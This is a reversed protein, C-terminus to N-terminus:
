IIFKQITWAGPEGGLVKTVSTIEQDSIEATRLVGRGLGKITESDWRSRPLDSEIESLNINKELLRQEMIEINKYFQDASSNLCEKCESETAYSSVIASFYRIIYRPWSEDYFYQKFPLKAFFPYDKAYYMKLFQNPNPAVLYVSKLKSYTKTFKELNESASKNSDSLHSLYIANSASDDSAYNLKWPGLEILFKDKKKDLFTKSKRLLKGFFGTLYKKLFKKLKFSLGISHSHYTYYPIEKDKFKNIFDECYPAYVSYDKYFNPNNRSSFWIALSYRIKNTSLNTTASHLLDGSILVVTGAKGTVRVPKQFSEPVFEDYFNFQGINNKDATSRFYPAVLANLELYRKHSNPLLRIPANKEDVDVLYVFSNVMFNGTKIARIPEDSFGSTDAHFNGPEAVTGPYVCAIASNHLSLKECGLLQRNVSTLNENELADVFNQSYKPAIVTSRKAFFPNKKFSSIDASGFVYNRPTGSLGTKVKTSVNSETADQRFAPFYTDCEEKLKEIQEQSFIRGPSLVLYGNTEFFKIEDRSLFSDKM